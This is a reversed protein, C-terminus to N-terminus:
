IKAHKGLLFLAPEKGSCIAIEAATWKGVPKSIIRENAASLNQACCLVTKAMGAACIAALIQGNRYPTEIFLQTEGTRQVTADLDRITAERALKEVPLYGHFRFHQGDMGSAMLGLLIASPGVLPVVRVNHAHALAVLTNGPDATGPCGADSIVGVDLGSVLWDLVKQAAPIECINLSSIPVPLSLMGLFARAAKPTEVAFHRLGKAIALTKAPLVDEPVALGLLNPVLFLSGASM